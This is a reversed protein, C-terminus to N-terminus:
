HERQQTAEFACCPQATSTTVCSGRKDSVQSRVIENTSPWTTLSVRWEGPEGSHTAYAAPARLPASKLLLDAASERRLRAVRRPPRNKIKSVWEPDQLLARGVAVLDFEAVM